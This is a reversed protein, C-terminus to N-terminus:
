AAVEQITDLNVTNAMRKRSAFLEDCLAEVLRPDMCHQFTQSVFQYVTTDPKNIVMRVLEDMKIKKNATDLKFVDVFARGIQIQAYQDLYLYYRVLKQKVDPELSWTPSEGFIRHVMQVRWRTQDEPSKASLLEILDENSSTDAASSVIDRPQLEFLKLQVITDSLQRSYMNRGPNQAVIVEPLVITDKPNSEKRETQGSAKEKSKAVSGNRCCYYRLIIFASCIVCGILIGGGAVVVITLILFFTKNLNLSDKAEPKPSSPAPKPKATTTEESLIEPKETQVYGECEIPPKELTSCKWCHMIGAGDPFEAYGALCAGCTNDIIANGMAHVTRHKESCETHSECSGWNDDRPAFTKVPCTQCSDATSTKTCPRSPEQGKSCRLCFECDNKKANFYLGDHCVNEEDVYGWALPIYLACLFVLAYFCCFLNPSTGSGM